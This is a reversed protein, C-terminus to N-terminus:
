ETAATNHLPADLSQLAGPVHMRDFQGVLRSLNGAAIVADVDFWRPDVLDGLLGAHAFDIPGALNVLAAVHEPHLAAYLTSLTAGMCYSLIGVQDADTNRRVFRVARGLRDLM